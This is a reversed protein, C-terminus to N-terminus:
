SKDFIYHLYIICLLYLIKFYSAATGWLAWNETFNESFKGPFIQSPGLETFSKELENVRAKPFSPRKM